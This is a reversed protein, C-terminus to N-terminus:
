RAYRALVEEAAPIYMSASSMSGDLTAASNHLLEAVQRIAVAVDRNQTVCNEVIHVAIAAVEESSSGGASRWGIADLAQELRAKSVDNRGEAERARDSTFRDRLAHLSISM